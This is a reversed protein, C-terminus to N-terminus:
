TDGGHDRKINRQDGLVGGLWNYIRKEVIAPASKQLQNESITLFFQGKVWGGGGRTRHGFEVYSAYEVPNVIEIVYNNGEKRVDFMDPDVKNAGGFLAGYMAEKESASTWGRRLTGGVRGDDYQGVPTNKIVKRLLRAALEKAAQKMLDDTTMSAEKLTDQLAKLQDMNIQVNGM